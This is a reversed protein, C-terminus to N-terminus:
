NEITYQWKMIHKFNHRNNEKAKDPLHFELVPTPHWYESKQWKWTHAYTHIQLLLARLICKLNLTYFHEKHLRSNSTWLRLLAKSKRHIASLLFTLPVHFLSHAISCSLPHSLTCSDAYSHANPEANPWCCTHSFSSKDSQALIDQLAKRFFERRKRKKCEGKIQTISGPASIDLHMRPLNLCLRLHLITPPLCLNCPFSLWIGVSLFVVPLFLFSM